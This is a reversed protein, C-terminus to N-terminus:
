RRADSVQASLKKLEDLIESATIQTSIIVQDLFARRREILADSLDKIKKDLGGGVNKLTRKVSFLRNVFGIFCVFVSCRVCSRTKQMHNSLNVAIVFM